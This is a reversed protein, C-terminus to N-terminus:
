NKPRTLPLAVNIEFIREAISERDVWSKFRSTRLGLKMQKGSISIEKGIEFLVGKSWSALQPVESEWDHGFSNNVKLKTSESLLFLNYLGAGAYFGEMHYRVFVPSRVFRYKLSLEVTRGANVRKSTYSQNQGFCPEIIVQLRNDFGPILVSGYLGFVGSHDNRIDVNALKPVSSPRQANDIKFRTVTGAAVLGLSSSSPLKLTHKHEEYKSGDGCQLYKIVIAEYDPKGEYERELFERFSVKDCDITIQRLALLGSYDTSIKSRVRKRIKTIHVIKQELDKVYYRDHYVLLSLKGRILVGLFVQKTTGDDMLAAHSEFYRKGPIFYGRVETPKLVIPQSTSEKKFQSEDYNDGRTGYKILGSITDGNLSVYHGRVFGSQARCTGLLIMLFVGTLFTVRLLPFTTALAL